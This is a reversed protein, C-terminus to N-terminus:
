SPALTTHDKTKRTSPSLHGPYTQHESIFYVLLTDKKHNPCWVRYLCSIWFKNVHSIPFKGDSFPPEFSSTASQKVSKSVQFGKEPHNTHLYRQLSLTSDQSLLPLVNFGNMVASPWPQVLRTNHYIYTWFYVNVFVIDTWQGHASGEGVVLLMPVSMKLLCMFHQKLMYLM